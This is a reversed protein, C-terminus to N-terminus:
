GGERQGAARIAAAIDRCAAQRQASPVCGAYAEVLEACRQREEAVAAAIAAEFLPLAELVQGLVCWRHHGGRPPQGECSCGFEQRIVAEARERPSM